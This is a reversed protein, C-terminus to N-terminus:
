QMHGLLCLYSSVCNTETTCSLQLPFPGTTPLEARWLQTPIRIKGTEKSWHPPYWGPKHPQHIAKLNIKKNSYNLGHYFSWLYISITFLREKRVVMGGWLFVAVILWYNTLELLPKKKKRKCYVFWKWVYINGGMKVFYYYVACM